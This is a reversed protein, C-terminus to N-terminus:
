ILETKKGAFEAMGIPQSTKEIELCGELLSGQGTMLSMLMAKKREFSALTHKTMAEDMTSICGKALRLRCNSIRREWEPLARVHEEIKMKRLKIEEQDRMRKSWREIERINTCEILRYGPWPAMSTHPSLMIEGDLRLWFHVPECTGRARRGVQSRTFPIVKPQKEITTVSV